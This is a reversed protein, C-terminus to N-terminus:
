PRFWSTADKIVTFYFVINWPVITFDGRRVPRARFGGSQGTFPSPLPRSPGPSNPIPVALGTLTVLNGPSATVTDPHQRSLDGDQAGSVPRRSSGASGAGAPVRCASPSKRATGAILGKHLTGPFVRGELRARYSRALASFSQPQRAPRARIILSGVIPIRERLPSLSSLPGLPRCPGLRNASSPAGFM